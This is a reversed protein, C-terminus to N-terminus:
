IQKEMWNLIVEADEEKLDYNESFLRFLTTQSLAEVSLHNDLKNQISVSFSGDRYYRLQIFGESTNAFDIGQEIIELKDDTDLNNWARTLESNKM